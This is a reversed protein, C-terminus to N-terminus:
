RKGRRLQRMVEATISSASLVLTIALRILVMYLPAQELLQGPETNIAITIYLGCFVVSILIWLIYLLRYKTHNMKFLTAWAYVGWGALFINFITILDFVDDILKFM